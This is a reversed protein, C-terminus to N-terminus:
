TIPRWQQESTKLVTGINKMIDLLVCLDHAGNAKLQLTETNLLGSMNEQADAPPFSIVAEACLWGEARASPLAPSTFSNARSCGCSITRVLRPKDLHPYKATSPEGQM